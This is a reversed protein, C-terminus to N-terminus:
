CVGSALFWCRTVPSTKFFQLLERGVKQQGSQAPHTGDNQFDSILWYLGDSRPSSGDAWLYPGWALWPAAREYSLDGYEGASSAGSAVQGIQAEIVWKVALGSEFAFPEPNLTSTAYGAFIRSSAFVQQLNPYRVKLARSIDAMRRALLRADAAADPLGSRPQSHAVKMWVVQVQLETAGRAALRQDRILDYNADTPADWADATQGGRAGDVIALTTHNVAADAAAQGAFSWPACNTVPGSCFEQTTNSMGISLLVYRGSASPQGNADLPRIHSSRVLGAALHAGNPENGNPYLGGPFGLYTRAGMDTLAIRVTDSGPPPDTNPGLPAEDGACAAFTLAVLLCWRYSWNLKPKHDM